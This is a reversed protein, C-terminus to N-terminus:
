KRISELDAPICSDEVANRLLYSYMMNVASGSLISLLMSYELPHPLYFEQLQALELLVSATCVFDNVQRELTRSDPRSGTCTWHQVAFMWLLILIDRKSIDKTGKETKPLLHSVITRKMNGKSLANVESGQFALWGQHSTALDLIQDAIKEAEDPSAALQNRNKIRHDFLVAKRLSQSKLNNGRLAKIPQNVCLQALAYYIYRATHRGNDFFQWNTEIWRLLNEDQQLPTEKWQELLVIFDQRAKKTGYHFNNEYIENRQCDKLVQKCRKLLANHEPITRQLELSFIFCLDSIKRFNFGDFDPLVRLFLDETEYYNLQLGLAINRWSEEDTHNDKLCRFFTGKQPSAKRGRRTLESLKEAYFALEEDSAEKAHEMTVASLPRGAYIYGSATHVSNSHQSLYLMLRYRPQFQSDKMQNQLESIANELKQPDKLGNLLGKVDNERTKYNQITRQTYDPM